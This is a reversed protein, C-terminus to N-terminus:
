ANKNVEPKSILSVVCAGRVCVSGWDICDNETKCFQVESPSVRHPTQFLYNFSMLFHNSVTPAAPAKSSPKHYPPKFNLNKFKVGLNLILSVVCVNGECISGLEICDM